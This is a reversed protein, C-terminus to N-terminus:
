SRLDEGEGPTPRRIVHILVVLFLRVLHYASRASSTSPRGGQRVRMEVEVEVVQLKADAALLLAEVTDSLYDSPYDTSFLRVARPGLARFGSTTDTVRTHLRRSVIRSLLRMTLRRAGSVEYGAAFRSGIVLDAGTTRRADILRTAETAPHQGDGDLQVVEGYGNDVAYRLATRIAAGVGVNFPHRLVTAGAANALMATDDISGDDVVVVDADLTERAGKVVDAISAAENLAPVIVLVRGTGAPSTM